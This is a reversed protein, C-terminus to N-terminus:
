LGTHKWEVPEPCAGVQSMLLHQQFLQVAVPLLLHHVGSILVRAKSIMDLSIM